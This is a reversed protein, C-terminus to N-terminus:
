RTGRCRPTPSPGPHRRCNLLAEVSNAFTRAQHFAMGTPPPRQCIALAVAVPSVSHASWPENTGYKQETAHNVKHTTEVRKAQLIRVPQNAAKKRRAQKNSKNKSNNVFQNNRSVRARSIWGCSFVLVPSFTVVSISMWCLLWSPGHYEVEM